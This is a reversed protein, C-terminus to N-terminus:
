QEVMDEDLEDPEVDRPTLEQVYVYRVPRRQREAEYFDKWMCRLSESYKDLECISVWWLIGFLVFLCASLFESYSSAAIILAVLPFVAAFLVVGSACYWWMLHTYARKFVASSEM